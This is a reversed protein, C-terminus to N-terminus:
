PLVLQLVGGPSGIGSGAGAPREFLVFMLRAVACVVILYALLFWPSKALDAIQVYPTVAVFLAVQLPVHWLYM